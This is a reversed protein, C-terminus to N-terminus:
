TRRQQYTNNEGYLVEMANSYILTVKIAIYFLAACAADPYSVALQVSPMNKALLSYRDQNIYYVPFPPSNM